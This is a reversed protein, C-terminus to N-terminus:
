LPVITIEAGVATTEAILEGTLKGTLTVTVAINTGGVTENVALWAV